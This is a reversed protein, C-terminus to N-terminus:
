ATHRRNTRIAQVALTFLPYIGQDFNLCASKCKRDDAALCLLESIVFTANFSGVFAVRISRGAVEIIGCDIEADTLDTAGRM